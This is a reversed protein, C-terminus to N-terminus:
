IRMGRQRAEADLVQVRTAQQFPEWPFEVAMVRQIARDLITAKDTLKVSQCNTKAWLFLSLDADNEERLRLTNAVWEGLKLGLTRDMDATGQIRFKVYDRLTPPLIPYLKPPYQLTNEAVWVSQTITNERMSIEGRVSMFFAAEPVSKPGHREPIAARLAERM